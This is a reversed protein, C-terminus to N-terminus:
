FNKWAAAKQMPTLPFTFAFSSSQLKFNSAFSRLSDLASASVESDLLWVNRSVRQTKQPPLKMAIVQPEFQSWDIKKMDQTVFIGSACVPMHLVFLIQNM